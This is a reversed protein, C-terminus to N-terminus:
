HTAHRRTTAIVDSWKLLAACAVWGITAVSALHLHSSSFDFAIQTQCFFFKYLGTFIMRMFTESQLQQGPRPWGGHFIILEIIACRPAAGLGRRGRHPATRLSRRWLPKPALALGNVILSRRWRSALSSSAEAGVRPLQRHPKPALTLCNDHIHTPLIM